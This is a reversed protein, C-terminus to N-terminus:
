CVDLAILRPEGTWMIFDVGPVATFALLIGLTFM